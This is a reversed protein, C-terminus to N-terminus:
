QGSSNTLPSRRGQGFCGSQSHVRLLDASTQSADRMAVSFILSGIDSTSLPLLHVFSNTRWISRKDAGNSRSRFPFPLSRSRWLTWFQSICAPGTDLPPLTLSSVLAISAAHALRQHLM